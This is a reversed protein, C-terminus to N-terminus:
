HADDLLVSSIPMALCGNVSLITLLADGKLWLCAEPYFRQRIRIAKWAARLKAEKVSECHSTWGSALLTEGECNRVVCGFIAQSDPWIVADFNAKFVNAPPPTWIIYLPTWIIYRLGM